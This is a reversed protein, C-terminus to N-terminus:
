AFYTLEEGVQSIVEIQDQTFKDRHKTKWESHHTERFSTIASKVVEGVPRPDSSRVAMQVLVDPLFGPVDLPHAKVIASLGLMGAHRRRLSKEYKVQAEEDNSNREPKRSLKSTAHKLLRQALESQESVSLTPVIGQLSSAASERVSIQRDALSQIIPELLLQRQERTAIGQHHFCVSAAVKTAYSRAHWSDSQVTTEVAQQVYKFSNDSINRTVHIEDDSIAMQCELADYALPKSIRLEAMTKELTKNLLEAIEPRPHNQTKMLKPLSVLQIASCTASPFSGLTAMFFCFTEMVRTADQFEEDTAQSGRDEGTTSTSSVNLFSKITSSAKEVKELLLKMCGSLWVERETHICFNSFILKEDVTEAFGKAKGYKAGEQLSSFMSLLLACWMAVIERCAKYRNNWSTQLLSWISLSLNLTQGQASVALVGSERCCFPAPYLSLSNTLVKGPKRSLTAVGMPHAYTIQYPRAGDLLVPFLKMWKVQNSFSSANDSSNGEAEASALQASIRQLCVAVLPLVHYTTRDETAHQLADQFDSIWDLPIEDILPVIVDLMANMRDYPRMSPSKLDCVSRIEQYSFPRNIGRNILELLPSNLNPDKKFYEAAKRSWHQLHASFMEAATAVSAKRDDDKSKHHAIANVFQIWVEDDPLLELVSSMFYVHSRDFDGSSGSAGFNGLHFESAPVINVAEAVGGSWINQPNSEEGHYVSPHDAIWSGVLQSLYNKSSFKERCEHSLFHEPSRRNDTCFGVDKEGHLEVCLLNSTQTLALRRLPVSNSVCASMWWKWLWDRLHVFENANRFCTYYAKASFGSMYVGALSALVSSCLLQYRWHRISPLLPAESTCTGGEAVVALDPKQSNAQADGPPYLFTKISEIIEFVIIPEDTPANLLPQWVKALEKILSSARASVEETKGAPCVKGLRDCLLLSNVWKQLLRHDSKLKHTCVSPDQLLSLSGRASAWLQEQLQGKEHSNELKGVVAELRLASYSVIPKKMWTMITVVNRVVNYVKSHVEEMLNQNTKVLEMLLLNRWMNPYGYLEGNNEQSVCNQVVDRCTQPDYSIKLLNAMPMIRKLGCNLATELALVSHADKEYHQHRHIVSSSMVLRRCHYMGIKRLMHARGYWTDASLSGLFNQRHATSLNPSRGNNEKALPNCPGDRMKRLQIIYAKYLYNKSTSKVGNVISSYRSFKQTSVGRGLLVNGALKVASKVVKREHQVEGIKNIYSLAVLVLHEISSKLGGLVHCSSDLENGRPALSLKGSTVVGSGSSIPSVARCVSELMSEGGDIDGISCSVCSGHALLNDDGSVEKGDSLVSAVGRFISRLGVLAAAIRDNGNIEIRVKALYSSEQYNDLLGGLCNLAEADSNENKHRLSGRLISCLAPLYDNLLLLVTKWDGEKPYVWQVQLSNWSQPEGWHVWAYGADLDEDSFNGLGRGLTITVLGRLLHRLIKNAMRRLSSESCFLFNDVFFKLESIYAASNRGLGDVIADVIWLTWELSQCNGQTLQETHTDMPFDSRLKKLLPALLYKAIYDPCRKSFVTVAKIINHNAESSSRQLVWEVFRTALEKKFGEHSSDLMTAFSQVLGYGIVASPNRNMLLISLYSDGLDPAFVHAMDKEVHAKEQSVSKCKKGEAVTLIYLAKDFFMLAIDCLGGAGSRSGLEWCNRYLSELQECGGSTHSCNIPRGSFVVPLLPPDDRWYSRMHDQQGHDFDSLLSNLFSEFSDSSADSIPAAYRIEDFPLLFVSYNDEARVSDGDERPFLNKDPHNFSLKETVTKISASELTENDDRSDLSTTALLRSVTLAAMATKRPDSADMSAVIENFIARVKSSLWPRPYMAQKLICAVAGIASMSKTPTHIAEEDFLGEQALETVLDTARKPAITSILKLPQMASLAIFTNGSSISEKVLKSSLKLLRHVDMASLHLGPINMVRGFRQLDGSFVLCSAGNGQSLSGSGCSRRVAAEQGIRKTLNILLSNIWHMAAMTSPGGTCCPTLAETGLLEFFGIVDYGHVEMEESMRSGKMPLHKAFLDICNEGGCRKVLSFLLTVLSGLPDRSRSPLFHNVGSNLGGTMAPLHPYPFQLHDRLRSFIFPVYHSWDTSFQVQEPSFIATGDTSDRVNAKASMNKAFRYLIDAWLSDLVAKHEERCWLRFLKAVVQSIDEFDELCIKSPLFLHMFILSTQFIATDPEAVLSKELEEVIEVAAPRPFFRRSQQILNLLSRIHKAWEEKNGCSGAEVHSLFTNSLKDYLLRWPIRMPIQQTEVRIIDRCIIRCRQLSAPGLQRRVRPFEKAKKALLRTITEMCQTQTPTNVTVNFVAYFLQRLIAVCDNKEFSYKLDM